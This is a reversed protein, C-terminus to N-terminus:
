RLIDKTKCGLAAALTEVTSLKPDYKGTLIRSFNPQAIGMASAVASQSKGAMLKRIKDLNLPRACDDGVAVGANDSGDPLPARASAWLAPAQELRCVYLSPWDVGGFIGALM